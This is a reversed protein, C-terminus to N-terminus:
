TPLRRWLVPRHPRAGRGAPRWPTLPAATGERPRFVLVHDILIPVLISARAPRVATSSAPVPKAYEVVVFGLEGPLAATISVLPRDPRHPRRCRLRVVVVAAAGVGVVVAVVTAPVGVDGGVAPVVAGVTGPPVVVAAGDGVVTAGVTAGVVTGAVVAGGVPALPVAITSAPQTNL